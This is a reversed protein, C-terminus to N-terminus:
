PDLPKGSAELYARETAPVVFFAGFAGDLKADGHTFERRLSDLQITARAEDLSLGKAVAAKTQALLSALTARVLSVYRMDHLVDGHGPMITTAGFAELARLTEVWDGIYSGYAYPVPHVVLDGTALVRENPLWVVVDGRTNGRGLYRLEITRAGRQLVLRDTFTLSPAVYRSRSRQEITSRFDAVLQTFRARDDDTLAAGNSRRGAQLAKEVGALQARMTELNEGAKAISEALMDIRTNVHAVFEVRPYAAAFVENGAHHDDHWHTNVVYRVPKSTIQKLAALVLRASGATLNADVVVVDSDNVILLDNSDGPRDPTNPRTVAYVGEALKTVTPPRDQALATSAALLCATALCRRLLPLTTM